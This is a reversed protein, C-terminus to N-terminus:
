RCKRMFYRALLVKFKVAQTPGYSPEDQIVPPNKLDGAWPVKIHM